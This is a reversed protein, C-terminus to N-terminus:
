RQRKAKEKSQAFQTAWRSGTSLCISRGWGKIVIAARFMSELQMPLALTASNNKIGHIQSMLGTYHARTPSLFARTQNILALPWIIQQRFNNVAASLNRMESLTGGISRHLTSTTTKLPVSHRGSRCGAHELSDLVRRDCSPSLPSKSALLVQLFKTVVECMEAESRSGSPTGHPTSTLM